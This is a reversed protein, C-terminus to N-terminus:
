KADFPLEDDLIIDMFFGESEAQRVVEAAVLCAFIGQKGPQIQRLSTSAACNHHWTLALGNALTTIAMVLRSYGEQSWHAGNPGHQVKAPWNSM